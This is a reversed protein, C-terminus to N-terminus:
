ERAERVYTTTIDQWHQHRASGYSNSRQVQTTAAEPVNDQVYAKAQPFNMGHFQRVYEIADGWGHGDTQPDWCNRCMWGGEGDNKLLNVRFRDDGHCGPCSCVYENHFVKRLRTDAEALSKVGIPM